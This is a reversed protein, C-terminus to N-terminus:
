VEKLILQYHKTGISILKNAGVEELGYQQMNFALKWLTADILEALNASINQKLLEKREKFQAVQTNLEKEEETIPFNVVTM